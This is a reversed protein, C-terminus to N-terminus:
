PKIRWSTKLRGITGSQRDGAEEIPHEVGLRRPANLVRKDAKTLNDDGKPYESVVTDFGIEKLNNVHAHFERDYCIFTGYLFAGALM